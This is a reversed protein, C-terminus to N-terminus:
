GKKEQAKKARRYLTSRSVEGKKQISGAAKRQAIAAPSMTKKKGKALAALAQAATNKTSM